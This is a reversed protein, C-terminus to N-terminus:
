DDIDGFGFMCLGVTQGTAKPMAAVVYRRVNADFGDAVSRRAFDDMLASAAEYSSDGSKLDEYGFDGSKLDEYSIDGSKLDEYSSDGSKLDEYGFDGSKLGGYRSDEYSSDGSKLCDVFM